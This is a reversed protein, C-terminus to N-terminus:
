LLRVQMYVFGSNILQREIRQEMGTATKDRSWRWLVRRFFVPTGHLLSASTLPWISNFYSTNNHRILVLPLASRILSIFSLDLDIYHMFVAEKLALCNRRWLFVRAANVCGRGSREPLYSISNLAPPIGNHCAWESINEVCHWPRNWRPIKCFFESAYMM